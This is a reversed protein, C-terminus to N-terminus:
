PEEPELAKLAAICIAMPMGDKSLATLVDPWCFKTGAILGARDSAYDQMAAYYRRRRSIGREVVKQHVEWAAAIDTSYEPVMEYCKGDYGVVDPLSMWLGNRREEDSAKDPEVFAARGIEPIRIMFSKDGFVRRQIRVDIPEDM